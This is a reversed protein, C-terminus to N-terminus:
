FDPCKAQLCCNKNMRGMLVPKRHPIICRAAINVRNYFVFLDTEASREYQEPILTCLRKM